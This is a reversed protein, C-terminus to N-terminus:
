RRVILRAKVQDVVGPSLHSLSYLHSHTDILIRM